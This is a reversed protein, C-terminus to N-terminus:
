FRTKGGGLGSFHGVHPMEDTVLGEEMNLSRFRYIISPVYKAGSLSWLNVLERFEVNEIECVIRGADAPFDPTTHADFMCRAQFFSIVGSIMKLSELYDQSSINSQNYVGAFIVYLNVFVPPHDNGGLGSMSGKSGDRAINILSVVLKNGDVALSGDQNVVNGLTVQDDSIGFRSELYETLERVIAPLVQHIM